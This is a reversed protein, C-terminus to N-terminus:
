YRPRPTAAESSDLKGVPFPLGIRLSLEDTDISIRREDKQSPLEPDTPPDPIIYIKGCAPCESKKGASAKRALVRSECHPCHFRFRDEFASGAAPVQVSSGCAHCRVQGGAYAELVQWRTGCACELDIM